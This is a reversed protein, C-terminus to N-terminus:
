QGHQFTQPNQPTRMQSPGHDERPDRSKSYANDPEQPYPSLTAAASKPRLRHLTKMFVRTQPTEEFSFNSAKMFHFKMTREHRTAQFVWKM